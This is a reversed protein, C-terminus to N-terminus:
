VFLDMDSERPPGVGGLVFFLFYFAFRRRLSGEVLPSPMLLSM